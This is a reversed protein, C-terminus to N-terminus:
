LDGGLERYRALFRDAAEDETWGFGERWERPFTRAAFARWEAETEPDGCATSGSRVYATIDEWALPVECVFALHDAVIVDYPLAIYVGGLALRVSTAVEGEVVEWAAGIRWKIPTPVDATLIEHADHLLGDRAYRAPVLYSVYWSHEAVSYNRRDCNGCFRPMRALARATDEIRMDGPRLNTPDILEDNHGHLLGPRTNRNENSM